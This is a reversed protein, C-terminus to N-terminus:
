NRTVNIIERLTSLANISLESLMARVRDFGYILSDKGHCDSSIVVPRGAEAIRSLVRLSPYPDLRYGRSMAGTNVEFVANTCLLRDLAKDQAAIYRPHLEDISVGSDKFKTVLDFHGIIDCGTREVIDGVRDYYAESLTYVDGFFYKEVTHAVEESSIDVAREGVATEVSHVSGIIYEFPLNIRESIYDQEIGVFIKIKDAYKAKLGSIEDFYERVRCAPLCWDEGDLPSHSSFGLESMGLGIAAEVMERPTSGGDCYTTHTHFNSTLM